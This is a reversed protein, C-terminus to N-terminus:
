NHVNEVNEVYEITKLILLNYVISIKLGILYSQLQISQM